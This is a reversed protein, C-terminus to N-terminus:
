IGDELVLDKGEGGLKSEQTDNNSIPHINYGIAEIMNSIRSNLDSDKPDLLLDKKKLKVCKEIFIKAIVHRV